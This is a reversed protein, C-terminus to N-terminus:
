SFQGQVCNHVCRVLAAETGQLWSRYVRPLNYHGWGFLVVKPRISSSGSSNLVPIRVFFFLVINNVIFGVDSPDIITSSRRWAKPVSTWKFHAQHDLHKLSGDGFSTWSTWQGVLLSVVSDFWTHVCIIIFCIGTLINCKSTQIFTVQTPRSVHCSSATLLPSGLCVNM